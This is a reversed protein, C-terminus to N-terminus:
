KLSKSQLTTLRPWFVVVDDDDDDIDVHREVVQPNQVCCVKESQPNTQIEKGHQLKSSSVEAVEPETQFHTIVRDQSGTASTLSQTLLYVTLLGAWM